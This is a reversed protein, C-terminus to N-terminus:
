PALIRLARSSSLQPTIKQEPIQAATFVGKIQNYQSYMGEYISLAYQFGMATIRFSRHVTFITAMITIELESLVSSEKCRSLCILQMKQKCILHSVGWLRVPVKPM